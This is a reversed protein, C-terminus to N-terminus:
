EAPIAVDLGVIPVELKGLMEKPCLQVFHAKEEDWHQMLEAAKKSGTEELHMELLQELEGMYHGENVPV